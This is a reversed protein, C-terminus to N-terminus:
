LTHTVLSYNWGVGTRPQGALAPFEGTEPPFLQVKLVGRLVFFAFFIYIIKKKVKM